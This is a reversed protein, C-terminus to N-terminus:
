FEFILNELKRLKEAINEETFHLCYFSDKQINTFVLLYFFNYFEGNDLIEERLPPILHLFFIHVM